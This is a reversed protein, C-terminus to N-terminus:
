SSYEPIACAQCRQSSDKLLCHSKVRKYYPLEVPNKVGTACESDYYLGNIFFFCHGEPCFDTPFRDPIQDGWFMEGKPFLDLLEQAFSDCNGTNIARKSYGSRNWKRRLIAIANTVQQRSPM